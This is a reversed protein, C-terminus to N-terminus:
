GQACVSKQADPRRPRQVSRPRRQTPAPPEAAQISLYRAWAQSPSLEKTVVPGLPTEEIRETSTGEVNLLYDIVSRARDRQGQVWLIQARLSLLALRDEPSTIQPELADLDSEADRFRAHLFDFFLRAELDAAGEAAEVGLETRESTTRCLSSGHRALRDLRPIVMGLAAIEGPLPLLSPRRAAQGDISAPPLAGALLRTAAIVLRTLWQKRCAEDPVLLVTRETETDFVAPPSLDDPGGFRMTVWRSDPSIALAGIRQSADLPHYRPQIEHDQPACSVLEFDRGELDLSFFCREVERNFDITVSRLKTMLRRGEPVLSILRTAGHNDLPWRTLELELGRSDSKGMVLILSRGDASWFPAARPTGSVLLPRPESFALGRRELLEVTESGGERRIYACKPGDPAWVPLVANNISHVRRKTRIEVLVVAPEPAPVPVALYAGDASWSCRLHPMLARAERDLEFFPSSWVVKKLDLATQVVVELSGWEASGQPGRSRTVLRAFAIAKGRPSWSPASLPLRSEEILVSSREAHHTAWIRYIFSRPGAPRDNDRPVEGHTGERSTDFLWTPSLGQGDIESVVTYGLWQSDTSWSVPSNMGSSAPSASGIQLASLLVLQIGVSTMSKKGSPSTGHSCLLFHAIALRAIVGIQNHM